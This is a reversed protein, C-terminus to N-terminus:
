IFHISHNSVIVSTTKINVIKKLERSLNTNDNLNTLCIITFYNILYLGTFIEINYDELYVYFENNLRNYHSIRLTPVLM